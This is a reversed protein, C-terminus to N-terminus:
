DGDPDALRQLAATDCDWGDGERQLAGAEVLAQLARNVKPRTAGLVTALEGQSIDLRLRARAPLDEGSLQHLTFLIFRATRAELPFLAISELQETTERLRRSLYRVVARNLEPHSAAIGEWASRTLVFGETQQIATADASRPQHDFLAVEGLTDGPEAHRLTLERGAQTILSLRVRGEALALL